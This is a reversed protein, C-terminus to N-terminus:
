FYIINHTFGIRGFRILFYCDEKMRNRTSILSRKEPITSQLIILFVNFGISGSGSTRIGLVINQFFIKEDTEKTFVGVFIGSSCTKRYNSIFQLIDECALGFLLFLSSKRFISRIIVVLLWENFFPIASHSETRLLIHHTIIWNQPQCVCLPSLIRMWLCESALPATCPPHPNGHVM